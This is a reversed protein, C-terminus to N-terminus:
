AVGAASAQVLPGELVTRLKRALQESTFPKQLFPVGSELVGHAM